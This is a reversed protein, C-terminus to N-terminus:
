LVEMILYTRYRTNPQKRNSWFIRISRNSNKWEYDDKIFLYIM